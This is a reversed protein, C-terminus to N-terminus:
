WLLHYSLFNSTGPKRYTLEGNKDVIHSARAQYALKKKENAGDAFTIADPSGFHVAKPGLLHVFRKDRRSSPKIIGQIGFKTNLRRTLRRALEEDDRSQIQGQKLEERRTREEQEQARKRARRESGKQLLEERNKEYYDKMTQAVKQPNNYRFKAQAIRAREAREEDTFYLKPRPMKTLLCCSKSVTM